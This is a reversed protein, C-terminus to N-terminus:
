ENKILQSTRLFSEKSLSSLLSGLRTLESEFSHPLTLYVDMSKFNMVFSAIHGARRVTVETDIDAM